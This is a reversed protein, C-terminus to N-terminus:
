FEVKERYDSVDESGMIQGSLVTAIRPYFDKSGCLQHDVVEFDKVSPLSHAVNLAVDMPNEGERVDFEVLTTVTAYHKM